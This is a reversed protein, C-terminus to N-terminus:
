KKKVKKRTWKDVYVSFKNRNVITLGRIESTEGPALEFGSKKSPKKLRQIKLM